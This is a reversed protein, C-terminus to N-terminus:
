KLGGSVLNVILWVFGVAAALLGLLSAFAFYGHASGAHDYTAVFSVLGVIFVAGGIILFALPINM